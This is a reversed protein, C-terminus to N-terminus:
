LDAGWPLAFRYLPRGYEDQRVHAADPRERPARAQNLDVVGGMSGDRRDLFMM